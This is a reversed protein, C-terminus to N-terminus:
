RAKKKEDVVKAIDAIYQDMEKVAQEQAQRVIKKYNEEDEKLDFDLEKRLAISVEILGEAFSLTQKFVVSSLAFQGTAARNNLESHQQRTQQIRSELQQFATALVSIEPHNPNATQLQGIRTVLNRQQAIDNEVSKELFEITKQDMLLPFRLRNLELNIRAFANSAEIVKTLTGMGAIIHIKSLAAGFNHAISEHEALPLNLDGFKAIYRAAKAMESAAELYVERRLTMERDRNKQTAEHQLQITLRETQQRNSKQNVVLAIVAAVIAGLLTGVLGVIAVFLAVPIKWGFVSIINAVDNM